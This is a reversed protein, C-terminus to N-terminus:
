SSADILARLNRGIVATETLGLTHIKVRSSQGAASDEDGELLARTEAETLVVTPEVALPPNAPCLRQCQLCGVLTHHAGAPITAPLPATRENAFTLCREAHLLVRDEDIGGTPCAARCVSCGECDDLLHPEAPQWTGAVPLDADTLYAALQLYSGIGPAYTVNNRGYRVLGLSVALAKMPADLLDVRAGHLPGELLDRRVDEFTPRYRVYTPPIIADIRRGGVTLGVGHASRPIALVVVVGESSDVLRLDTFSPLAERVFTPDLETAVRATMEARIPDLVRTPGWAVRWGRATAWEMLRMATNLMTGAVKSASASAAGAGPIAGLIGRVFAQRRYKRDATRQAKARGARSTANATRPDGKSGGVWVM